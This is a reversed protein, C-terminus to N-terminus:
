LLELGEMGGVIEVTKGDLLYIIPLGTALPEGNEDTYGMMFAPKGRRKGIYSVSTACREDAMDQIVKPIKMNQRITEHARVKQM